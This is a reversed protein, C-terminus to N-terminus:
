RPFPPTYARGNTQWFIPLTNNPTRILSVLTGSQCYGFHFQEIIGIRHEIRKLIAKESPTLGTICSGVMEGYEIGCDLQQLRVLAEQTIFLTVIVIQNTPIGLSVIENVVDTAYNGTGIFDDVIILKNKAINAKKEEIREMDGLCLFTKKSLADSYKIYTGNCLYTVLDASKM